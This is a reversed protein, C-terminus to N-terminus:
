AILMGLVIAGSLSGAAALICLGGAFAAFLAKGGRGQGGLQASARALSLSLVLMALGLLGLGFIIIPLQLASRDLFGFFAVGGAALALLVLMGRVPTLLRVDEEEEWEPQGYQAYYGAPQPFGGQYPGSQYYGPRQSSDDWDSEYPHRRQDKRKKRDSV